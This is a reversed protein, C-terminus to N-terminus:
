YHHSGARTTIVIPVTTKTFYRETKDKTVTKFLTTAPKVMQMIGSRVVPMSTSKTLVTPVTQITTQTSYFTSSSIQPIVLTTGTSVSFQTETLQEVTSSIKTVIASQISDSLYVLYSTSTSTVPELITTGSSIFTSTQTVLILRSTTETLIQDNVSTSLYSIFETTPLTFTRIISNIPITLTSIQSLAQPFTFLNDTTFQVTTTRTLTTSELLQM